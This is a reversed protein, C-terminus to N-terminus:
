NRRVNHTKALPVRGHKAELLAYTREIEESTRADSWDLAAGLIAAIEEICAPTLSLYGQMAIMSRRMLLDDLHIIHEKAAIYMLERRSYDPLSELASDEDEQIFAAIEVARTGYRELLAELREQSLGVRKHLTEIWGPRLDPAPFDKGGGIPQDQTSTLRKRGLYNLVGDATQESFARFTTWKGGILSYVPFALGSEQQDLRKITHNRSISGTRGESNAPLPRVGSFQYVIHSRDVAIDPFVKKVLDLMYTIEEDTCVAAEPDNIRIDTTGVLVRNFHPLILVIRGDDNEFFIESGGIADYLEPHDLVLHSGKTGDIFHTEQRLAKNAIDIWPGAANVVVRPKVTFTDGNAHDFITVSDPAASIVGAYNLALAQDGAADADMLLEICLREPATILADYYTATCVIAPNLRPFAALSSSRGRFRHYPMTQESGTFWDYLMLGLKIVVAGRESPRNLLGLFKLPANLLGSWWRFIPITTPLPRAYHPANKLLRNREHLAERVLRFEGNELYRIGGHLMHSSAASAGSGYDGKDVLLVRLGQLALDRFTGIGNVGGGIVLVDVEPQEHLSNLIARRTKVIM